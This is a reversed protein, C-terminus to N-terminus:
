ILFTVIEIRYKILSVIDKGKCNINYIPTIISLIKLNSYMNNDRLIQAIKKNKYKFILINSDEYIEWNEDKIPLIQSITNSETFGKINYTCLIIMNRLQENKIKMNM